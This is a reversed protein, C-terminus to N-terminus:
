FTLSYSLDRCWRGSDPNNLLLGNRISFSM